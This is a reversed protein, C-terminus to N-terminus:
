IGLIQKKKLTFEEETLIGEDYLAKYRRIENVPDITQQQFLEPVKEKKSKTIAQLKALIDQAEKIHKQYKKDSNKVSSTIFYIYFAPSEWDKVVIQLALEDCMNANKATVSGVM